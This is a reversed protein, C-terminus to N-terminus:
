RRLSEKGPVARKKAEPRPDAAACEAGIADLDAWTLDDAAWLREFAADAVDTFGNYLRFVYRRRVPRTEEGLRAARGDAWTDWVGRQADSLEEDSPADAFGPQLRDRARFLSLALENRAMAEDFEMRRQGSEFNGGSFWLVATGDVILVASGTLPSPLEEDVDVVIPVDDPVGVKAALEETIGAILGADYKVLTFEAPKVEVRGM